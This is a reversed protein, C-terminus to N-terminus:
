KNKHKKAPPGNEAEEDEVILKEVISNYDNYGTTGIFCKTTEQQNTPIITVKGEQAKWKFKTFCLVDPLVAMYLIKEFSWKSYIQNAVENIFQLKLSHSFAKTMQLVIL